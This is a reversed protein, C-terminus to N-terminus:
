PRRNRCVMVTGYTVGTPRNADESHHVPISASPHSRKSAEIEFLSWLRDATMASASSTTTQNTTM